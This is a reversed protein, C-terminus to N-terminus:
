EAAGKVCSTNRLAGAHSASAWKQDLIDTLLMAGAPRTGWPPSFECVRSDPVWHTKTPIPAGAPKSEPHVEQIPFAQPEEGPNSSTQM